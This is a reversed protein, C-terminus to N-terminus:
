SAPLFGDVLMVSPRHVVGGKVKNVIGAAVTVGWLPSGPDGFPRMAEETASYLWSLTMICAFHSCVTRGWGGGDPIGGVVGCARRWGSSIYRVSLGAIRDFAKELM